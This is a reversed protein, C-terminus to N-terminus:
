DEPDALVDEYLTEIQPAPSQEAFEVAGAVISKCNADMAAYENESFMGAAIM